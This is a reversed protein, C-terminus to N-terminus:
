LQNKFEVAAERIIQEISERHLPDGADLQLERMRRDVEMQIEVFHRYHWVIEEDSM